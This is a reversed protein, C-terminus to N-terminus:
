TFSITRRTNTSDTFYLNTGDFEIAGAEPTAMVIGADVKIPAGFTSSKGAPLHMRATPQPIDVGVRRESASMKGYIINGINLQNSDAAVQVDVNYGIVINSNGTTLSAAANTGVIVNFDVDTALPAISSGIAVNRDPDTCGANSFSNHGIVTNRAGIDCYRLTRYGIAIQEDGTTLNLGAEYGIGVNYNTNVTTMSNYGIAVNGTISGTYGSLNALGIGINGFGEVNRQLVDAGIGINNHGSKNDVLAFSGIAINRHGSDNKQLAIWGLAVNRSGVTNSQLAKVGAAVNWFGSTNTKLTEDGIGVNQKGTTNFLANDKGIFTSRDKDLPDNSALPRIELVVNALEDVIEYTATTQGTIQRVSIELITGDFSAEPTIVIDGSNGSLIGRSYIHDTYNGEYMEFEDSGGISVTWGSNSVRTSSPSTVRIVVQYYMGLTVPISRSLIDTPSTVPPSHTFGSAFSGTWNEGLSWGTGDVLEANSIEATGSDGLMIASSIAIAPHAGESSINSLKSHDDFAVVSAIDPTTTSTYPLPTTNLPKYKVGSYEMYQNYLTFEVGAAWVGGNIPTDALAKSLNKLTARKSINGQRLLTQDGATLVTAEPLDTLKRGAM